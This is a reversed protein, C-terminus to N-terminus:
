LQNGMTGLGTSDRMQALILTSVYVTQKRTHNQRMPWTHGGAMTTHHLFQMTRESTRENM